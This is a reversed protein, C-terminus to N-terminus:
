FQRRAYIPPPTELEERETWRPGRGARLGLPDSLAQVGLAFPALVLFYFVNLLLRAQVDGIRRAVRKWGQWLRRAPARM